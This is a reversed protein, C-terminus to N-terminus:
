AGGVRKTGEKPAGSKAWAILDDAVSWESWPGTWSINSGAARYAAVDIGWIVYAESSGAATAELHQANSDSVHNVTISVGADRLRKEFNPFSDRMRDSAFCGSPRCHRLTFSKILIPAPEAAAAAAAAEPAVAEAPAAAAASMKPHPTRSPKLASRQSRIEHSVQLAQSQPPIPPLSTPLPHRPAPHM